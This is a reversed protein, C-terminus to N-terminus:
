PSVDLFIITEPSFGSMFVDNDKSCFSMDRVFGGWPM